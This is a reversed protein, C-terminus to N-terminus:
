PTMKANSNWDSTAIQQPLRVADRASPHQPVSSTHQQQAVCGATSSEQQVCPVTSGHQTDDSSWFAGESQSQQETSCSIGCVGASGARRYQPSV